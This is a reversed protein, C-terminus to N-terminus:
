WLKEESALREKMEQQFEPPGFAHWEGATQYVFPRAHAQGYRQMWALVDSSPDQGAPVIVDVPLGRWTLKGRLVMVGIKDPRFWDPLPSGPELWGCIFERCPDKPRRDYIRCSHGTSHPCPKGPFVDQGDIKIQLWGDCCATCKGCHRARSGSSTGCCNKYKKGSGCPCPDNRGPKVPM